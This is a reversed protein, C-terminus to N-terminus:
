FENVIGHTKRYRLLAAQVEPSALQDISTGSQWPWVIRTDDDEAYFLKALERLLQEDNM